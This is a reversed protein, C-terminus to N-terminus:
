PNTQDPQQEDPQQRKREKWLKLEEMYAATIIGSPLAIIAVGMIASMMSVLRGVWSIPCIDGYGVTTLTCAAWYVADFFTPFIPSGTAPDAEMEANFMILATIFIYSAAFTLVTLLTTREKRLVALMMQLPPYYRIVRVIRLMRLMRTIRLIKFGSSVVSFTPLISLLDMVAMPQLPYIMFAQRPQRSSRLDATYWRLLYDIIFLLCSLRDCWLMWPETGRFMLPAIGIAIALFMLYDYLQATRTAGLHSPEVLDVIKQRAIM